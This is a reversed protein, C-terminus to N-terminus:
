SYFWIASQEREEVITIRFAFSVMSILNDVVEGTQPNISDLRKAIDLRLLLLSNLRLQRFKYSELGYLYSTDLPCSFIM